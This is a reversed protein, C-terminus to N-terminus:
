KLIESNSNAKDTFTSPWKDSWVQNFEAHLHNWNEKSETRNQMNVVTKILIKTDSVNKRYSLKFNNRWPKWNATIFLLIQNEWHFHLGGNLKLVM